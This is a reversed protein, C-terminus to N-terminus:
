LLKEYIKITTENIINQCFTEKARIRAKKGMLSRLKPKKILIKIAEALAESNQAPIVFGERGNTIVERCGAVNTTVIPKGCAAAELLAKPMGERYSPLCAVDAKSWVLHMDTRHGWYEVGFKGHWQLLTEKDIAAPNSTDTDGVLVFRARTNQNSLIEAAEIFEFIGKDRLMRAVLMVIPPNNSNKSPLFNQLDVGAGPILHIFKCNIGIKQLLTKDESNQVIILHNNRNLLLPLLVITLRKLFRAILSSSTFMWGMGAISNIVSRKGALWNAISGFIIPKLAVHHIIDPKSKRYLFYLKFIELIPNGIQRSLNIPIINIGKDSIFKGQTTVRTAVSVKYGRKIAEVATAMRHSVFYKDETVVFLIHAANAQNGNLLVSKKCMTKDRKREVKGAM